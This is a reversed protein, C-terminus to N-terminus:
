DGHGSGESVNGFNGPEGVAVSAGPPLPWELRGSVLGALRALVRERDVERVSYSRAAAGMRARRDPDRMLRLVAEAFAKPDRPPVCEIGGCAQALRWLPSGERATAVMPRGVAMITYIKSPVAFDSASPEQPVLLLDAGALGAALHEAPLLPEFRVNGLARSAVDRRLETEMSGGGRLIVVAEPLDRQLIEACDLVQGLGQKRGFNGSYLVTPPTGPPRSLPKFRATDVWIPVVFIPPSVGMSRLAAGMEESLVVILDARNLSFREVARLLGTVMGSKAMALSQALGSQIDHVIAVHRGGRTLSAALVAMVSPCFSVVAGGAEIRRRWLRPAARLLFHFESAIRAFARGSPALWTPLREIQLGQAHERDRRGDRYEPFISFGPYSPRNTLAEVRCGHEALWFGLDGSYFGTGILEPWFWQSVILVSQPIAETTQSPVGENASSEGGGLAADAKAALAGAVDDGGTRLDARFM